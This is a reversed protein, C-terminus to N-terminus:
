SILEPSAFEIQQENASPSKKQQGLVYKRVTIEAQVLKNWEVKKFQHFNHFIYCQLRM